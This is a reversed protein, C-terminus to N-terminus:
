ESSLGIEHYEQGVEVIGGELRKVPVSVRDSKGPVFM